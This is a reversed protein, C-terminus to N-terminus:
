VLTLCLPRLMLTKHGAGADDIGHAGAAHDENVVEEEAAARARTRSNYERLPAFTSLKHDRGYFNFVLTCYM